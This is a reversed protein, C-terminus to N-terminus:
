QQKVFTYCPKGASTYSFQLRVQSSTHLVTPTELGQNSGYQGDKSGFLRSVLSFIFREEQRRDEGRKKEGGREEM